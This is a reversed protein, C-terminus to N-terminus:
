PNQIVSEEQDDAPCTPFISLNSQKCAFSQLLGVHKIPRQNKQNHGNDGCDETEATDCNRCGSDGFQQEEDEKHDEHDCQDSPERPTAAGADLCTGRRQRKATLFPGSLNPVKKRTLSADVTSTSIGYQWNFFRYRFNRQYGDREPQEYGYQWPNGEQR